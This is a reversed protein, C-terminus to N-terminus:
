ISINNGEVGGVLSVNNMFISSNGITSMGIIEGKHNGVVGVIGGQKLTLTHFMNKEGTIHRSCGSDLHSM